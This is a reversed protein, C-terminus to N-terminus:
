KMTRSLMWSAALAALEAQKKPAAEMSAIRKGADSKYLEPDSWLMARLCECYWDPDPPPNGLRASLDKQALRLVRLATADVELGPFETGRPPPGIDPEMELVPMVFDAIAGAKIPYPIPVLFLYRSSPVAKTRAIYGSPVVLTLDTASLNKFSLRLNTSEGEYTITLEVLKQRQAESLDLRQSQAFLCLAPSLSITWAILFVSMSKRSM